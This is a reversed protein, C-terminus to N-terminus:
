RGSRSIQKEQVGQQGQTVTDRHWRRGTEEAEERTWNGHKANTQQIIEDLKMKLTPDDGEGEGPRVAPYAQCEICQAEGTHHKMSAHEEVSKRSAAFFACKTCVFGSKVNLFQGVNVDPQRKIRDVMLAWIGMSPVSKSGHEKEFHKIFSAGKDHTHKCKPYPCWAYANGMEMDFNTAIIKRYVCKGLARSFIM